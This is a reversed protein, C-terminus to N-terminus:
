DYNIRRLTSKLQDEVVSVDVQISRLYLEKLYENLRGEAKLSDYAMRSVRVSTELAGHDAFAVRYFNIHYLKNDYIFVEAKINMM